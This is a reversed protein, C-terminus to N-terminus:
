GARCITILVTHYKVLVARLHRQISIARGFSRNLINQLIKFGAVPELRDDKAIEIDGTRIGLTFDSFKM